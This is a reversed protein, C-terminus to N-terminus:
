PQQHETPSAAPPSSLQQDLQARVCLVNTDKTAALTVSTIHRSLSEIDYHAIREPEPILLQVVGAGFRYYVCQGVVSLAMQNVVPQPASEGLLTGITDHLTQYLPCFFENVISEFVPTPQQMERMFLQSEWGSADAALMRSLMTRVLRYLMQEADIGQSRPVPFQKERDDRITQIVERYLGMKDGFYYAVSAVNVDALSCIERVTARDFGHQAFVPGAAGLLRSRM